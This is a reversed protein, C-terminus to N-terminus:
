LMNNTESVVQIGIDQVIDPVSEWTKYCLWFSLHAVPCDVPPHDHTRHMHTHTYSYIKDLFRMTEEDRDLVVETLSETISCLDTCGSLIEDSAALWLRQCRCGYIELMEPRILMCLCQSYHFLAGACVCMPVCWMMFMSVCQFISDVLVIFDFGATCLSVSNLLESWEACGAESCYLWHSRLYTCHFFVIQWEWEIEREWVYFVSRRDRCWLTM